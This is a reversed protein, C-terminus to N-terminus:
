NSLIACQKCTGSVTLQGSVKCGELSAELLPIVHEKIDTDRLLGCHDCLFHDHPNTNADYRMSGDNTPPAISIIGREALRATARHVTTASLAPFQKRLLGLLEANSAHGVLHLASEIADCYKTQRYTSTSSQM